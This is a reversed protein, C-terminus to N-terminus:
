GVLATRVVRGFCREDHFDPAFTPRGASTLFRPEDEGHIIASVHISFVEEFPVQLERRPIGFFSTWGDATPHVAITTGEPKRAQASRQRYGSFLMSWWAGDSSINFEQYVGGESRIFFETVDFDWLGEVFEGLRYRREGGPPAPVRSTFWLREPDLVFAWRYPSELGEGIWDVSVSQGSVRQLADLDLLRESEYAVIDM